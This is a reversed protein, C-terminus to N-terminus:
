NETRLLYRFDLKFFLATVEEKVANNKLNDEHIKNARLYMGIVSAYLPNQTFKCGKFVKSIQTAFRASTGGTFILTAVDLNVNSKILEDTLTQKLFEDIIYDTIVKQITKPQTDLNEIFYEVTREDFDKGLARFKDSVKKVINAYGFNRPRAGAIDPSKQYRIIQSNLTGLDIIYNIANPNIDKSMNFIACAAEAQVFVNEIILTVEEKGFERIKIEKKELAKSRLSEIADKSKYTDLSCGLGVVFNTTKTNQYVRYLARYMNTISYDNEKTIFGKDTIKEDTMTDCAVGNIYLTKTPDVAERGITLSSSFNDTKIAGKLSDRYAIKVRGFGSDIGVVLTKLPAGARSKANIIENNM